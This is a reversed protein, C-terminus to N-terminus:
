VLLTIRRGSSSLLGENRMARLERMVSTRDVCLYDALKSLSLETEFSAGGSKEKMYDFYACLKARVTKKSLLHVRLELMRAKGATLRFLNETLQTHHRCANPCRGVIASFPIFMVACEADAEVIFGLSAYPMAFFEGFIDNPGYQELLTYEGESDVCYLHAKGSLLVCLYELNEPFARITEGRRYTKYEPKFCHIMADISGDSIGRFIEIQDM